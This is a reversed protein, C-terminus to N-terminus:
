FTSARRPTWTRGRRCTREVLVASGPPKHAQAATRSAPHGAGTLNRRRENLRASNIAGGAQRRERSAGQQEGSERAARALHRRALDVHDDIGQRRVKGGVPAHKPRTPRCQSRQNRAGAAAAARGGVRGKGAGRMAAQARQWAVLQGLKLRVDISPALQQRRALLAGRARRRPSCCATTWVERDRRGELM